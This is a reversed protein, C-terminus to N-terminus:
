SQERNQVVSVIKSTIAIIDGDKLDLGASDLGELLISVLDDGVTVLRTKIGYLNM